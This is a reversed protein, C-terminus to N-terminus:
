RDDGRRASGILLENFDSGAPANAIRVRRGQRTWRDAAYTAAQKGPPDGDALIIVDQVYSPLELSKLGSTSLAAWATHGSAQMASLCTEIGEGVLLPTSRPALRVVGGRCPGLMMKNPSVPAKGRGDHDLYTRHVGIPRDDTGHTVLAVM